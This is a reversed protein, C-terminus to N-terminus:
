NDTTPNEKGTEPENTNETKETMTPEEGNELYKTAKYASVRDMANMAIKWKDTRIDYEPKVGDAKPTYILPAGDEIPEGEDVIRQIKTILNEGIEPEEIMGQFLNQRIKKIAIM